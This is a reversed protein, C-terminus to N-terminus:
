CLINSLSALIYSCLLPHFLFPLLPLFYTKLRGTLRNDLDVLGGAIIGLILPMSQSSIDFFWIGVAAINVAIFVPITSIVKTNLRINM